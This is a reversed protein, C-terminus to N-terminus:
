QNNEEQDIPQPPKSVAGFAVAFPFRKNMAQVFQQVGAHETKDLKLADTLFTLATEADSRSLHEVSSHFSTVLTAAKQVAENSRTLQYIVRAASLVHPLSSRHKSLYAENLSEVSSGNGFSSTAIEEEITKKLVPHMQKEGELALAPQVRHLFMMLGYHTEPHEPAISLAWTVHRLALLWKEKRIYVQIALHHTQPEDPLYQHM